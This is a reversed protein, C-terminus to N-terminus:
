CRGRNPASLTPRWSRACAKRITSPSVTEAYEEVFFDFPNIVTMPPVLEVEISLHSMKEPFVLRAVHNGFPDQQWNIFYEGGSIKLSYADVPTRCHPAPRLRFWTHSLAVPKDFDYTTQHRLAVRITM